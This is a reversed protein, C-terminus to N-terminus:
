QSVKLAQLLRALGEDFKAQDTDAGIFNGIVRELVAEKLDEDDPQWEDFVFRDLAIPILM